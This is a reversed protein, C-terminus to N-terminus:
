NSPGHEGWFGALAKMHESVGQGYVKSLNAPTLVERKDGYAFTGADDMMLVKTGYAYAISLDHMVAIVAKRPQNAWRRVADFISIQYSIDLHNLPEDMILIDPDQCFLQALFARQLEGGSLSLVSQSRVTNLGTQRLVEEIREDDEADLRGFPGKKHIYRGFSV